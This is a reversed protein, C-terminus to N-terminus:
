YTQVSTELFCQQVSRVLTEDQAAVIWFSSDVMEIVIESLATIESHVFSPVSERTQYWCNNRQHNPLALQRVVYGSGM